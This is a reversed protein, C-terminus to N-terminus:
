VAPRVGRRRDAQLEELLARAETLDPGDDNEAIGAIAQALSAPDDQRTLRARTVAIRLALMAAQQQEAMAVAQLLMADAADPHGPDARLMACGLMRLMEPVFVKFGLRDFEDLPQLLTDIAHEPRGCAMLAEAHLSLYVPFDETTGIARQADLGEELTRLGAAPDGAVAVAWGRFILGKARHDTLGHDSAFTVLESALDLVAAHDRRYARHLLRMDMAHVHSGLHDLSNAWARSQAEQALASLPRGQIWDLQAREGHACVKADHNGYLRAHDRYDGQEYLALGAQLHECCHGFDAAAYHTAWNCHHAQLLLGPDDRLSARSLLAAARQRKVQFDRSLRWWGWFIPFHLPEEPVEHCMEFASAYLEQAEASGPGKLGILAPGLLASLELRLNLNARVPPLSELGALGRRLMRTAETLASRALSNRAAELWYPAAEEALGAETLHSAILEPQQQVAYPDLRELARAVRVHLARRDDRLLSDYAADRLMAHSFSFTDAGDDDGPVIVDAEALIALSQDLEPDPLRCADALVDRRVTRGVVAAVQAVDKAPGSRDLRAMLSEHLSAPIAAEAIGVPSDDLEPLSPLQLLSRAVAEIFLPVGETRRAIIEPLQPPLPRDGFLSHVMAAVAGNPLRALPVRIARETVWPADFGLRTTFLLLVRRGDIANVMRDLFERSTPDLWHLDEVVLCLPTEDAWLLFQEVLASLLRERLAEPALGRIEPDDLSLGVLEAFLPLATDRSLLEQLRILREERPEDPDLRAAHRLFAIIPRLPSDEDFASAALHVVRMHRDVVRTLFQQVLRSKGIGAEGVVMVANGHGERAHRWQRALMRFEDTRNHFSTLRRPRREYGAAPVAAEGLVRWVRHPQEFGRISIAGLDDCAFLNAVRDHTEDAIVTGNSPAHNQLRAALNPTSGIISQRDEGGAFLDSVIVRGTAIGIRVGLPEGAPTVVGSIHRTIDLAARVAREPDNENAIPYCFYALVGDGVLRAIHGGYRNIARACFERYGRIVELLDEPELREGLRSSNVIDVFMITLPRREARTMELVPLVRAPPDDATAARREAVARRFRKREGITLGLERLDDETLEALQDVTIGQDRFADIRGALGISSLWAEL